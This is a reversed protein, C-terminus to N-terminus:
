SVKYSFFALTSTFPLTIIQPFPCLTLLTPVQALCNLHDLEAVLLKKLSKSFAKKPSLGSKLYEDILHASVETDTETFFKRHSLENKIDLYNLGIFLISYFALSVIIKYYAAKAGGKKVLLYAPTIGGNFFLAYFLLAPILFSLDYLDFFLM